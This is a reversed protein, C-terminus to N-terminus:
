AADQAIHCVLCWDQQWGALSPELVFQDFGCVKSGEEACAGVDAEYVAGGTAAPPIARSLGLFEAEAVRYIKLLVPAIPVEEIRIAHAKGAAKDREKEGVTQHKLHGEESFPTFALQLRPQMEDWDIDTQM